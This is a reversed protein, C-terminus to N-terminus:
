GNMPNVIWHYEMKKTAIFTVVPLECGLYRKVFLVELTDPSFGGIDFEYQYTRPNRGGMHRIHQPVILTDNSGPRLAFEPEHYRNLLSDYPLDVFVTIHKSDGIPIPFIPIAPPGVM